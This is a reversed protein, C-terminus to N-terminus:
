QGQTVHPLSVSTAPTVGLTTGLFTIIGYISVMVFLAIISWLMKQKGEDRAKQEGSNRIFQIMGWFFFIIAIAFVLEVGTTGLFDLLAKLIDGPGTVIQTDASFVGLPLLSLLGLLYYTKKNM